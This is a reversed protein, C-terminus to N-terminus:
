KTENLWKRARYRIKAEIKQLHYRVVEIDNNLLKAIESFSMGEVRKLLLLQKEYDSLQGLIIKWPVEHFLEQYYLDREIRKVSDDSQAIEMTMRIEDDDYSVVNETKKRSLRDNWLHSVTKYLYRQPHQVEGIRQNQTLRDFFKLYATQTIEEAEMVDGTLRLAYRLVRKYYKKVAEHGFSQDAATNRIDELTV